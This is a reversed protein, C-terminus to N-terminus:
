PAMHVNLGNRRVPAYHERTGLQWLKGIQEGLVNGPQKWIKMVMIICCCAHM